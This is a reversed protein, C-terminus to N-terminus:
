PVYGYYPFFLAAIYAGGWTSILLEEEYTECIVYGLIMFLSESLQLPFHRQLSSRIYQINIKEYKELEQSFSFSKPPIHKTHDSKIFGDKM